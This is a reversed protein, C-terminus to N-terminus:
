PRQKVAELVLRKGDRELTVKRAEVHRVVFVIDSSVKVTQGEAYARGNILAVRQEPGVVTGSLKLDMKEPNVPTPVAAKPRESVPRAPPKPPPAFPDRELRIDDAKRRPDQEMWRVLQQWTQAPADAAKAVEVAKVAEPMAPATAGQDPVPQTGVANVLEEGQFWGAVLPAWFWIAVGALLALLGAKKPNRRLDRLAQQGLTQRGPTPLTM